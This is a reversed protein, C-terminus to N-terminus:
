VVFSIQNDTNYWSVCLIDMKYEYLRQKGDEDENPRTTVLVM